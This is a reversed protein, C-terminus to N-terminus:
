QEKEHKPKITVHTSTAYSVEAGDYNVTQMDYGIEFGEPPRINNDYLHEALAEDDIGDYNSYKDSEWFEKLAKKIKGVDDKRM